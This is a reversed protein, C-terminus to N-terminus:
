ILSYDACNDTVKDPPPLSAPTFHFIGPDPKAASTYIAYWYSCVTVACLMWAYAYRGTVSPTNINIPLSYANLPYKNSCM